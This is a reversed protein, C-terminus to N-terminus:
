PQGRNGVGKSRRPWRDLPSQTTADIEQIWDELETQMRKALRPQTTALDSMESLDEALNYLEIKRTNNIRRIKHDGQIYVSDLKRFFHMGPRPRKIDGKGGNFLVPKVTGGEIGKPLKEASGALDAFTSLLDYGVVPVASYTGAKIGPGAAFFPVRLGGEYYSGKGARLPKNFHPYQRALGGNDSTLFIYTNDTLKLEDLVDLIRGAAQDLDDIMAAYWYATHVRGPTRAKHRALTAPKAEASLHIAYHSVQLYFPVGAHAQHRIFQVANDTLSVTRKPDDHPFHKTQDTTLQRATHNGTRGDSADYGLEAPHRHMHWKGFHAARYASDISKLVQPIARTPFPEPYNVARNTTKKLKAPTMGFQIAHRSPSCVPHPAYAQSFIMGSDALRKFNPTLYYDSRTDARLPIMPVETNNWGQDDTLILVINPRKALAASITLGLLLVAGLLHRSTNKMTPPFNLRVLGPPQGLSHQM